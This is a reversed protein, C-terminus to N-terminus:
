CEAFQERLEYGRALDALYNELEAESMVDVPNFPNLPGNDKITALEIAQNM